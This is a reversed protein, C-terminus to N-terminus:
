HVDKRTDSNQVCRQRQSSVTYGKNIGKKNADNNDDNKKNDLTASLTANAFPSSFAASCASFSTATIATTDTPPQQTMRMWGGEKLQVWGNADPLTGKM